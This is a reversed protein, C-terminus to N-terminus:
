DVLNLDQLFGTIMAAAMAPRDVCPLHGSGEIVEMRAGAILKATGAVLDPPTSGDESGAMALTPLTLKGTAETLDAAQIARGCAVYGAAPTRTLMTRWIAAEDAHGNRFSEPFWRQMVADAIAEIGGAEVAALREGWMEPTGIKAATDMLVMGRVLDPRRAALSQAIMGGISLGVVAAGKVELRDLLAATDDALGEISYPGLTLESLGHGRKDARIIRLGEPLLPVVKDWVRFDTGLSNVFVVPAGARDGEDAYHITAGNLRAGHM